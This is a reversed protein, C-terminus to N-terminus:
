LKGALKLLTKRDIRHEGEFYLERFDLGQKSIFALLNNIRAPPLYPDQTGCVFWLKKDAFFDQNIRYDLDDALNGAWLILYHFDPFRKVIWRSQTQCGQSFGFLVIQIDVPLQGRYHDYITSLFDTYDDIEDLRDQRTMWSAGVQGTSSDWYFKSLGEPAIILTIGDDLTDFKRIFRSALQGYGHCVIWLRKIHPGPIGISYYHATRQVAMKHASIM